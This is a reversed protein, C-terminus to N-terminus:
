KTAPLSQVRALILRAAEDSMADLDGVDVYIGDIRLRCLGHLLAWSVQAVRLPSAGEGTGLSQALAGIRELYRRFAGFAVERLAATPKGAKWITRGFMLDYQEPNADAFAIYARVFAVLHAELEVDAAAEPLEVRLSLEAFGREALACLLDNKNKFHHYLAAPTADVRKALKRLTLSELGGERIMVTAERLLASALDGHHYRHTTM